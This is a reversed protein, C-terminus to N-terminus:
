ACCHHDQRLGVPGLITTLTGKPVVLDIGKVVLPSEADGYRKTVQPIRHRL